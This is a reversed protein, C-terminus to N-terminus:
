KSGVLVPGGSLTARPLASAGKAPLLEILFKWGVMFGDADTNAGGM